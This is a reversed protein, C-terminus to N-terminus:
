ERGGIIRLLRDTADDRTYPNDMDLENELINDITTSDKYPNTFMREQEPTAFISEFDYIYDIDALEPPDVRVTRAGLSTL